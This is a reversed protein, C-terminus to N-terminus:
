FFVWGILQDAPCRDARASLDAASENLQACDIREHVDGGVQDWARSRRRHNRRLNRGRDIWVRHGDCRVPRESFTSDIEDCVGNEFLPRVGEGVM